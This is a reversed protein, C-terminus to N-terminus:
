IYKCAEKDKISPYKTCPEAVSIRVNRIVRADTINPKSSRDIMGQGLLNIKLRRIAFALIDCKEKLIHFKLEMINVTNVNVQSTQYFASPWM